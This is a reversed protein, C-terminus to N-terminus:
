LRAARKLAIDVHRDIVTIIRDKSAVLAPGMFPRAPRAPIYRKIRATTKSSRSSRKEGAEYGRTGFETFHARWGAKKWMRKNGKKYYGVWYSLGRTRRKIKMAQALVGTKKPVRRQAEKFVINAGDKLGKQVEIQIEKPMKGLKRRLKSTGRISSL